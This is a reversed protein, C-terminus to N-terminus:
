FVCQFTVLKCNEPTRKGKVSTVNDGDWVPLLLHWNWWSEKLLKKAWLGGFHLFICNLWLYRKVSKPDTLTFATHLVNIYNLWPTLEVLMKRAAKKYLLKQAAKREKCNPQTNKTLHINALFRSTFHQQFQSYSEIIWFLLGPFTGVARM